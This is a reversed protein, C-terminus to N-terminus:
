KSASGSFSMEATVPYHDSPYLADKGSGSIPDRLIDAALVNVGPSALIFDIKEGETGGHFDHFTGVQKEDPHVARFTDVLQVPSKTKKGLLHSIAASSEGSNFDGLVVVPESKAQEAIRKALLEASKQRSIDSVHDFHTNYVYV